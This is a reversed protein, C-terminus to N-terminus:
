NSNVQRDATLWGRDFDTEEGWQIREGTEWMVDLNELQALLEM